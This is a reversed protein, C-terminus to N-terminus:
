ASALGDDGDAAPVKATPVAPRKRPEAPGLAPTTWRPPSVLYLDYDPRGKVTTTTVLWVVNVTPPLSNNSPSREFRARSAADIMALVIEPKVHLARAQEELVKLNQIRGERTVVASLMLDGDIGTSQMAETSDLLARNELMSGALRVPEGSDANVITSIIGALSDPREQSAAQLVGASALICFLLAVSAGLGAWVFHMDDFVDRMRAGISLQQEVRIRELVGATIRGTEAASRGPVSGAMTRLADGLDAIAAAELRCAVCEQIHGQILVRAEMPLEGDHYAMLDDRVKSCALVHIM